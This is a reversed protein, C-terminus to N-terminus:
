ERYKFQEKDSNMFDTIYDDLDDPTYANDSFRSMRKSFQNSIRYKEVDFTYKDDTIMSVKYTDDTIGKIVCKIPAYEPNHEDYVFVKDGVKYQQIYNESHNSVLGKYLKKMYLKRTKPTLEDFVNPYDERYETFEGFIDYMVELFRKADFKNGLAKNAKKYWGSTFADIEVHREFYPGKDNRQRTDKKLQRVHTYEHVLIEHIKQKARDLDLSDEVMINILRQHLLSTIWIIEPYKKHVLALSKDYAIYRIDVNLSNRCMLMLRKYFVTLLDRAYFEPNEMYIDDEDADFSPIAGKAYAFSDDIIKELVDSIHKANISELILNLKM